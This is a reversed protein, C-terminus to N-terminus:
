SKIKIYKKWNKDNRKKDYKKYKQYSLKVECMTDWKKYTTKEIIKKEKKIRM